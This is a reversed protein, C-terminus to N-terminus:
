ENVIAAMAAGVEIGCAKGLQKMSDVYTVEVGMKKALTVIKSTLKPDADRAVFLKAAVGSEVAKTTQKTGIRLQGGRLEEDYSM